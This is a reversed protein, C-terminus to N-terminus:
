STYHTALQYVTILLRSTALLTRYYSTVFAFFSTALATMLEITYHADFQLVISRLHTHDSHYISSPPLIEVKTDIKCLYLVADAGSQATPSYRIGRGQYHHRLHRTPLADWVPNRIM